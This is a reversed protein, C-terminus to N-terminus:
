NNNGQKKNEVYTNLAETIKQSLHAEAIEKSLLVMNKIAKDNSIGHGVLVTSNIGLIPTGGFNEYNMRDIFEDTLGRKLLIRYMAEIQKLVVNGTFGDTVIIDVKDNFLDRSEVNGYFKFDPSDKMLQYTSQALLNGKKEEEGINLLGVKPDKINFVHKGYLSGLLAFQYMVDPKADPNTGVDLLITIGEKEKPIIATTCPRIVGQINNVSYISGVMMAGSNGASSFAEIDGKKLYEFGKAISSDPKQVFARTPQEGMGIVKPAHVIDFEDPNEDRQKLEEAILDRDGFLVLRDNKPLEKNILIAGDITAQPANDGGMVDLGVRM